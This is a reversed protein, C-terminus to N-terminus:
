SALDAVALTQGGVVLVRDGGLREVLDLEDIGEVIVNTAVDGSGTGDTAANESADGEASAAVTSAPGSAVPPSADGGTAGSGSSEAATADDAMISAGVEEFRM